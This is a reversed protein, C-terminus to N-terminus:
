QGRRLQYKAVARNHADLNDTFEHSGDGRAVFYLTKGDNPHVAAVLAAKGPLAIPTPPLGARTYTNYPTDTELDRRRLNGDFSAGLGYIVTPDTALRMGIKLRRVFVGAIEPRESAKGTEREIISALILAEYPTTVPLEPARTAWVEDLAKGMAAHARRYIELDKDGRTFTYTEPLFRGEAAQGEAGLKRMIEDDSLTAVTHELDARQAIAARMQKFTWGEVITVRHQMVDGEAMRTLLVRPTTGVPVAYEGAHLKGTVRLRESLARWYLDPASSLGAQKITRVIANFSSGPPVDIIREETQALPADIFRDWEAYYWAGVM